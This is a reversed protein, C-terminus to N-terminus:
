SQGGSHPHVSDGQRSKLDMLWRGAMVSMGIVAMGIVLLVGFDDFSNLLIKSLLATVMVVMMLSWFALLAVDFLVHRYYAFFGGAALLFVMVSLPRNMSQDFLAAFGVALVLWLLAFAVVQATWRHKLNLWRPTSNEKALYEFWMLFAANLAVFSFLWTQQNFLLGFLSSNVERYLSLSLNLLIWLVLWMAEFRSILVLPVIMVSWIAFLQWPDAGTQYTQGVLALWAGILLAMMLLLAQQVLTRGAMRWYALFSLLLAGQVLGFKVFRSMGDWNFAFFFIVGLALSMVGAIMLFKVVFQRWDSLGAQVGSMVKAAEWQGAKILGAAKWRYVVHKGM